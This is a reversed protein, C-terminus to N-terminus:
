QDDKWAWASAVANKMEENMKKGIGLLESEAEDAWVCVSQEVGDIHTFDGEVEIVYTLQLYIKQKAFCLSPELQAIIKKIDFGTKEKVGRSLAHMLSKESVDVNASPLEFVEPYYPKTPTRKVIYMKHQVPHFIAAAVVIKDFLIGHTNAHKECYQDKTM